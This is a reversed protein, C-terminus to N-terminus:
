NLLNEKLTLFKQFNRENKFEFIFFKNESIDLKYTRKLDSRTLLKMKSKWHISIKKGNWFIIKIKNSNINITAMEHKKEIEDYRYWVVEAFSDKSYKWYYNDFIYKFNKKDDKTDFKIKITNENFKLKLKKAHDIKKLVFIYGNQSTVEWEETELRLHGRKYFTVRADISSKKQIIQFNFIKKTIKESNKTLLNSTKSKKELQKKTFLKKKNTSELVLGSKVQRQGKPHSKIHTSHSRKGNTGSDQEPNNRINKMQPTSKNKKKNKNRDSLIKKQLLKILNTVQKKSQNNSFKIVINSENKTKDLFTLKLIPKKNFSPDSMILNEILIKLEGIKIKNNNKIVLNYRKNVVLAKGSVITITFIDNNGKTKNEEGRKKKGNEKEKEKEKEKQRNENKNENKNENENTIFVNEKHKMKDSDFSIRENTITNKKERKIKYNPIANEIKNCFINRKEPTEFPIVYIKNKLELNIEKPNKPNLEMKFDNSNTVSIIENQINFQYNNNTIVLSCKINKRSKSDIINFILNNEKKVTNSNTPIKENEQSKVKRNKKHKEKETEEVKLKEKINKKESGNGNIKQEVTVRKHENEKEKSGTKNKMSKLADFYKTRNESKEFQITYSGNPIRLNLIKPNKPHLLIKINNLDNVKIIENNQKEIQFYNNYVQIISANKTKNKLDLIFIHFNNIINNDKKTKIINTQPNAIENVKEKKTKKTPKMETETETETETIIKTIIKKWRKKLELIFQKVKENNNFFLKIKENKIIVILTNLDKEDNIIQIPNSNIEQINTGRESIVILKNPFLTLSANSEENSVINNIKITFVIVPLKSINEKKEEEKKEEKEEEEEKEFVLDYCDLFYKLLNKKKFKIEMEEDDIIIKLVKDDNSKEQFRLEKRSKAQLGLYGIKLLIFGKRVVLKGKEINNPDDVVEIDFIEPLKPTRIIESNEIIQQIKQYSQKLLQFNKKCQDVSNQINQQENIIPSFVKEFFINSSFNTVLDSFREKERSFHNIQEELNISQNQTFGNKTPDSIPQLILRYIVKELRLGCTISVNCWFKEGNKKVFRWQFSSTGVLFLKLHEIAKPSQLNLHPQFITYYEFTSNKMETPTTGFLTACKENAFLVTRDLFLVCFPLTTNKPLHYLTTKTEEQIEPHAIENGM